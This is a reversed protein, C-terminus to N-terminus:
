DITIAVSGNRQKSEYYQHAETMQDLPFKRDIISKIKGKEILEKVQLLDKASGPALSCIVKRDDFYKTWLMQLLQKTKFSALLYTGNPSLNKKCQFYSTRGLVDMILDYTEGTQTFDENNYDIVKHAGLSNVYKVRNTSCIGTVHAGYHRAIQVAAAGIGGSAGVILVKQGPLINTKRLLPLAMIPGYTALVAEEHSMNGPKIAICGNEPICIYEAYTGMQQGKYGFVRDGARFNVVKKGTQEVEGSFVSGLVKIRPKNWGFYLKSILWFIFPMSFQEPTVSKFKRALSEGFGVSTAKIKVLVENDRPVPKEVEAAKFVEPPGYEQYIIAKM